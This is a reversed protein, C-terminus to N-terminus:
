VVLIFNHATLSVFNCAYVYVKLVSKFEFHTCAFAKELANNRNEKKRKKKKTKIEKVYCYWSNDLIV